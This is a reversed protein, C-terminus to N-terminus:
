PGRDQDEPPGQTRHPAPFLGGWARPVNATQPAGVTRQARHLRSAAPASVRLLPLLSVAPSPYRPAPAIVGRRIRPGWPRSLTLLRGSAVCSAGVTRQVVHVMSSPLSTAPPPATPPPRASPLHRTPSPVAKWALPCSTGWAQRSAPWLTLQVSAELGPTFDWWSTQATRSRPEREGATDQGTNSLRQGLHPCGSLGEGCVCTLLRPFPQYAAQCSLGTSSAPTWTVLRPAQPLHSLFPWPDDTPAPAAHVPSAQAGPYGLGGPGSIRRPTRAPRRVMQPLHGSPPCHPIFAATQTRPCLLEALPGPVEASCHEKTERTFPRPFPSPQRRAERVEKIQFWREPLM